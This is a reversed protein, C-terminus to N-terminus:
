PQPKQFLGLKQYFHRRAVELNVKLMARPLRLSYFVSFYLDLDPPALKRCDALLDILQRGRHRYTHRSLVKAKAREAIATRRQEDDLLAQILHVLEEDNRYIVLDNQLDFLEEFGNDRVPDTLLLAGAAMGEFTRMNVDNRISQNFVIKAQQYIRAMERPPALGIHVPSFRDAIIELRRYRVPNRRRDNGGIFAVALTRERDATEYLEPAAALPLWFVQKLGDAKLREVYEKQAVFTIDFMRGIRLHKQYDMHTDIGYWATLCDLKELAFPFVKMSGGEVFLLLEPAFPCGALLKGADVVGVGTRDVGDNPLDSYVWVRHGNERLAQILYNATSFSGCSAILLIDM